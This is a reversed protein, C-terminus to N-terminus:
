EKKSKKAKPKGKKPEKSLEKEEKPEEPKEKVVKPEKKEKPEEPKEKVVKPEKKEKPEEPKEKVVEPKPEKKPEEKSPEPESEKEEAKPEEKSEEASEEAKPEESVEKAEPKKEEINSLATGQRLASALLQEIAQSSYIEGNLALNRADAFAQTLLISINQSTPYDANISINLADQLASVFEPALTEASISLLEPTYLYEGDYAVILSVGVDFPKIGLTQLAKTKASTIEEGKKAVVSDKMIAIKGAKIQVAIGASKLESLAPGPMLDTEGAPVIIDEQAIQGPKAAMKMTNHSFFQYLEYPSISSFVLASPNAFPELLKEPASVLELAKKLVISKAVKIKAKNRLEKRTQQLLKDPLNRLDIIAINKYNKLEAGLEEVQKKKLEIAKREM